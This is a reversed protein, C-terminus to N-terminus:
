GGIGVCKECPTLGENLAEQLTLTRRNEQMDCIEYLHYSSANNTVAFVLSEGTLESPSLIVPADAPTDAPESFPDVPQTDGTVPAPAAGPQAPANPVSVTQSVSGYGAILPTAPMPRIDSPAQAPSMLLWFLFTMSIFAAASCIIRSQISTERSRWAMVLGVPPVLLCLIGILLMPRLNDDPLFRPNIYVSHPASTSRFRDNQNSQM